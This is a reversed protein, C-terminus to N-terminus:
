VDLFDNKVIRQEKFDTELPYIFEMGMSDLRASFETPLEIQAPLSIITLLSSILLLAYRRTM